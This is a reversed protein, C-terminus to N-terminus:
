CGNLLFGGSRGDVGIAGRRELASQCYVLDGEKRGGKAKDHWKLTDYNDDAPSSFSAPATLCIISQAFCTVLQVDLPYTQTNGPAMLYADQRM